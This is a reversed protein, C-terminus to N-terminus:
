CMSVSNESHALFKKPESDLPPLLVDIILYMCPPPSLAPSSTVGPLLSSSHISILSLPLFYHPLCLKINLALSAPVSALSTSLPSLMSLKACRM